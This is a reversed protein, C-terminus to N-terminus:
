ANKVGYLYATSYQAFNGGNADLLRVGTIASTSSYLGAVLHSYATTNNTESVNDGSISKYSSGAYNPIYIEGNSFTSATQGTGANYGYFTSDSYTSSGYSSAAAGSGQIFKMTYNSSSGNLIVNINAWNGTTSRLSWKLCLDTYTNPIVTFDIDSAGGSGVTASYILEFTNAM